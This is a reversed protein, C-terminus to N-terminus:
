LFWREADAHLKNFIDIAIVPCAALVYHLKGKDDTVTHLVAPLGDSEPTNPYTTHASVARM